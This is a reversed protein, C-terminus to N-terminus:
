QAEDVRVAVLLAGIIARADRRIPREHQRRLEGAAAETAIAADRVAVRREVHPHHAGDAEALAHAEVDDGFAEVEEVAEVLGGRRRKEGVDVGKVLTVARAAVEAARRRCEIGPLKLESQLEVKLPCLSFYGMRKGTQCVSPNNQM